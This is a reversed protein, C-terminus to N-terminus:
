PSDTSPPRVELEGLVGGVYTVARLYALKEVFVNIPKYFNPILGNEEDTFYWASIRNKRFGSKRAHSRAAYQALFLDYLKPEFEFRQRIWQALDKQNFRNGPRKSAVFELYIEAQWVAPHVSYIWADPHHDLVARRVDSDAISGVLTAIRDRDREELQALRAQCAAPSVMEPLAALTSEYRARLQDRYRDRSAAAQVSAAQMDLLARQAAQAEMRRKEALEENRVRIVEKLDRMSERWDDTASPHSLWYRNGPDYLVAHAFVELDGTEDLSISSLDIEVLRIGESQIRLRKDADVAHTVRIEILLQGVEDQAAIDPVYDAQREELRVSTLIATQAPFEVRRGTLLEGHDDRLAPPNPMDIDGDWAPLALRMQECVLQKAMKHIASEFGGSCDGLRHHAFHARRIQSNKAKAVLPHGCAPCCCGCAIGEAVKGVPWMRGDRFGFPVRLGAPAAHAPSPPALTFRNPNRPSPDRQDNSEQYM